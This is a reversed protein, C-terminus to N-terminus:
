KGNKARLLLERIFSSRTPLSADQNGAKLAAVRREALHLDLWTVLDRPLDASVIVTHREM